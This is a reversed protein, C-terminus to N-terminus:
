NRGLGYKRCLESSISLGRVLDEIEASETHTTFPYAHIVLNGAKIAQEIKMRREPTQGEWLIQKMPWGSLTWVFQKDKPQKSNADIADLVRDVMSTRYEHVVERVRATYGLDVHTKYVIIVNELKAKKSAPTKVNAIDPSNTPVTSESTYDAVSVPMCSFSLLQLIILLRKMSM